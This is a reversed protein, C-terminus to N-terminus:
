SSSCSPLPNTELGRQQQPHHEYADTPFSAPHEAGNCLPSAGCPGTTSWSLQCHRLFAAVDFSSLLHWLRPPLFQEWRPVPASRYGQAHLGRSLGRGQRQGTPLVAGFPRTGDAFPRSDFARVASAAAKGESCLLQVVDEAGQGTELRTEEQSPPRRAQPHVRLSDPALHHIRLWATGTLGAPAPPLLSASGWGGM